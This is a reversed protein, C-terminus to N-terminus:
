FWELGYLFQSVKRMNRKPKSHNKPPEHLHFQPMRVKNRKPESLRALKSNQKADENQKTKSRKVEIRKTKSRKAENRKTESRKAENRKTESRKAENRMKEEEAFFSCGVHAECKITQMLVIHTEPDLIPLTIILFECTIKSV